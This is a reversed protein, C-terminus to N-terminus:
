PSRLMRSQLSPDQEQKVALLEVTENGLRDASGAGCANETEPSSGAVVPVLGALNRAANVDRDMALGCAPCHFVREALTLHARVLGCASCTKSSPYWRDAVVLRSGYWRTKYALQRHLRAWSADAISRALWRNRLMGAVHLDEV